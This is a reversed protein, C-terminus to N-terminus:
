KWEGLETQLSVSLSLHLSVRSLFLSFPSSPHHTSLLSLRKGPPPIPEDLPSQVRPGGAASYRAPHQQLRGQM